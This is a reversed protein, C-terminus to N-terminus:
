SRTGHNTSANNSSRPLGIFQFDSPTIDFIQSPTTSSNQWTESLAFIDIKHSDIADAIFESRGPAFLSRNNLTCINLPVSPGPNPQVDGSLFILIALTHASSQQRHSLSHRPLFFFVPISPLRCFLSHRAAVSASHLHSTNASCAISFKFLLALFLFSFNFHVSAMTPIPFNGLQRELRYRNESGM